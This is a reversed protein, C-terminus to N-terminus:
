CFVAIFLRSLHFQRHHHDIDDIPCILNSYKINHLSSFILQYLIIKPLFCCLELKNFIALYGALEVCCLIVSLIHLFQKIKKYIDMMIVKIIAINHKNTSSQKTFTNSAVALNNQSNLSLALNKMQGYKCKFLNDITIQNKRHKIM